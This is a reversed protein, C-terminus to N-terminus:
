PTVERMQEFGLVRQKDTGCKWPHGFIEFMERTTDYRVVSGDDQELLLAIQNCGHRHLQNLVDGSIGLGRFKRFVHHPLRRSVYVGAENIIGVGHNFHKVEVPRPVYLEQAWQAITREAM